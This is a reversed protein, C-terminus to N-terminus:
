TQIGYFVGRPTAAEITVSHKGVTLRYAEEGTLKTNIVLRICQRSAKDSTRMRIGTADAVYDTLFQANRKMDENGATCTVTTSATIVFPKDKGETVSLPKPVINYNACSISANVNTAIIALLTMLVSKKFM